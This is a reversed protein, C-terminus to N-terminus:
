RNGKMNEKKSQLKMEELNKKIRDKEIKLQCVENKLCGELLENSQNFKEKWYDKELKLEIVADVLCDVTMDKERLIEQLTFNENKLCRSKNGVEACFENKIDHDTRITLMEYM